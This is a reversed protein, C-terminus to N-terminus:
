ITGLGLHARFRNKIHVADRPPLSRPPNRAEGQNCLLAGPPDRISRARGTSTGSSTPTRPTTSGEREWCSREPRRLVSVDDAGGRETPHLRRGTTPTPSGSPSSTSRPPRSMSTPWRRPSGPASRDFDFTLSPSSVATAPPGGGPRLRGAPIGLRRPPPATGGPVRPPVGLDADDADSSVQGAPHGRPQPQLGHGDRRREARDGFRSWPATAPTSSRGRPAAPSSRPCRGCWAPRRAPRLGSHGRRGRGRRRRPGARRHDEPDPPAGTVAKRGNDEVIRRGPVPPRRRDRRGRRRWRLDAPVLPPHGAALDPDAGPAPRRGAAAGAAVAM